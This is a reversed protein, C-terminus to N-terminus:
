EEKAGKRINDEAWLPQYNTWNAVELFQTRDELNFAALPRVHDLHWKGYNDWSMGEIFQNEIFCKFEEISCGLDAVQSGSRLAKHMRGRLNHSIRYNTDTEFRRRFRTNALEKSEPLAAREKMDALNKARFEPDSSWRSRKRANKEDRWESDKAKERMYERNHKRHREINEPKANRAAVKRANHIERYEPDAMLKAVRAREQANKCTKCRKWGEEQFSDRICM